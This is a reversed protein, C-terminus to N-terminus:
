GTEGQTYSKLYSAELKEPKGKRGEEKGLAGQKVPANHNIEMIERYLKGDPVKSLSGQAEKPAYVEKGKPYKYGYPM